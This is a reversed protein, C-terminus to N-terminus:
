GDPRYGWSRRKDVTLVFNTAKRDYSKALRRFLDLKM